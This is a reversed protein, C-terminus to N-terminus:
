IMEVLMAGLHKGKTKKEVSLMSKSTDLLDTKGLLLLQGSSIAM